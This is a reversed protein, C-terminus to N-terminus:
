RGAQPHREGFAGVFGSFRGTRSIVPTSGRSLWAHDVRAAAIVLDVLSSWFRNRASWPRTGVVTSIIESRCCAFRDVRCAFCSGRDSFSCRAAQCSWATSTRPPSRASASM